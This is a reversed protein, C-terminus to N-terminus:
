ESKLGDTVVNVPAENIFAEISEATLSVLRQRSEIAKWGIHPTIVVNDMTFLPSNSDLPEVEQVDLAAGAIVKNELAEILEKENVIPGRATNILFATPKMMALKEANILYKTDDTLPVHVSVYDSNQLLEDLSVSKVNPNDYSKVTRSYTLVKMGLALAVKMVEEGISGTGILGLTKDKVEVHSVKLYKTFNSFDKREIMLQQEVVSSSLNLISQITVQAVAETSYGPVNCVTIGKKRAVEVDINNYGTGSECILKVSDPFQEILEGPLLLEKVIVVDQGQVRDLIEDQASDAYTTLEGLKELPSYDLKEDFDLRAANLFVIKAM